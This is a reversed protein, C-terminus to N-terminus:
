YWWFATWRHQRERKDLGSSCTELVQCVSFKHRSNEVCGLRKEALVLRRDCGGNSEESNDIDHFDIKSMHWAVSFIAFAEGRARM